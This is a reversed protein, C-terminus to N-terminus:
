HHKLINAESALHKNVVLIGGLSVGSSSYNADPAAVVVSGFSSQREECVKKDAKASAPELLPEESRRVEECPQKSVRQEARGSPNAAGSSGYEGPQRPDAPVCVVKQAEGSQPWTRCM